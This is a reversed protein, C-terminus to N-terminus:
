AAGCVSLASEVAACVYKIEANSAYANMPLSLVKECLMESIPLSGSRYKQYAPQLHMPKHYYIATPVGNAKLGNHLETRRESKITYQAWASVKGHGVDPTQVLGRLRRTYEAAIHNRCAIEEDLINIKALLIAAQITDLRSNIGLRATEYKAAGQGHTRISRMIAALDTDNTFVAGGDGFCGLPKAPFFSTTTIPALSGVKKADLTGGFSQAADAILLLSHRRTIDNLRPWDAPQGFLDVAIVAKMSVGERRISAIRRELDNCDINFSVPDVDVFVPRAGLLLVVEATATFTFSPIFVADGSGVGTAMLAIQLADTGNAVTISERVGCFEALRRELEVVEPGMVFQGHDIVRGIRMDIEARLRKTQGQLGTFAVRTALETRDASSQHNSTIIMRGFVKSGQPM